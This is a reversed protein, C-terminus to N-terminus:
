RTRHDPPAGPTRRGFDAEAGQHEVRDLPPHLEAARRDLERRALEGYQFRQRALRARDDRACLELFAHVPPALLDAAVRHLHVEVVQPALEIRPEDAVHTAHAVAYHADILTRPFRGDRSM